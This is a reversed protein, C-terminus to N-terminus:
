SSRPEGTPLQAPSRGPPRPARQVVVAPRPPRPPRPGRRPGSGGAGRVDGVAAAPGRRRRHRRIGRPRPRAPRRHSWRVGRGAPGDDAAGAVVRAVRGGGRCHEDASGYRPTADVATSHAGGVRGARRPERLDAGMVAWRAVSSARWSVTVWPRRGMRVSMSRVTAGPGDCRRPRGSRRRCTSAAAPAPRSRAARARARTSAPGARRRGDAVQGLLGLPPGALRDRAKRARRVPTAAASRRAPRRWRRRRGPRAPRRRGSRRRGRATGPGRRRRSRRGRRRWAPGVEAQGVAGRGTRHGRQRAALRRPGLQGGIRSLRKSTNRRSSGVLSRSKAPRARSSRKTARGRRGPQDHDAM